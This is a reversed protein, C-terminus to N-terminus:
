FMAVDEVGVKAASVRVLVVLWSTNPTTFVVVILEVAGLADLTYVM